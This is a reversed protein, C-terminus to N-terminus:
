PKHSETEAEGSVEPMALQQKAHVSIIRQQFTLPEGNLAKRGTTDPTSTSTEVKGAMASEPDGQMKALIAAVEADPISQQGERSAPSPYTIILSGGPKTLNVMTEIAKEREEPGLEQLVASSLIVDFSDGRESILPLDPLRDRVFEVNPHANRSMAENILDSPEAAVVHHGFETALWKADAGSGCGADLVKLPEPTDLIPLSAAHVKRRDMQGYQDALRSANQSYFEIREENSM